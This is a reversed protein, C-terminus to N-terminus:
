TISALYAASISDSYVCGFDKTLDLLSDNYETHNPICAHVTGRRIHPGLKDVDVKYNAAIFKKITPLSTAKRDKAAIISAKVM